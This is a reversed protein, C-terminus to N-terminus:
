KSAVKTGIYKGISAGINKSEIEILEEVIHEPAQKVIRKLAEAYRISRPLSIEALNQATDLADKDLYESTRPSNIGNEFEIIGMVAFRLDEATEIREKGVRVQVYEVYNNTPNEFDPAFKSIMQAIDGDFQKVKSKVDRFLARTGMIKNEFMVFRGAYLKPNGQEDDLEGAYGQGHEINAPNNYDSM